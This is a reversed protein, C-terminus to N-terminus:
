LWEFDSDVLHWQWDAGLLRERLIPDRAWFAFRPRTAVAGLWRFARDPVTQPIRYRISAYGNRLGWIALAALLGPAESRIDDASGSMWLVDVRKKPSLSLWM